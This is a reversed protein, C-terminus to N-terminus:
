RNRPSREDRREEVATGPCAAALRSAVESPALGAILLTKSRSAPGSALTVRSRPLGLAEAIVGVVAANARGGEPPAMVAVKLSGGHEGVIRDRSARSQVHVPLLVGVSTHSLRVTM